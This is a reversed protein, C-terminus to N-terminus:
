ADDMLNLVEQHTSLPPLTAPSPIDSKRKRWNFLPARCSAGNYVSLTARQLRHGRRRCKRQESHIKLQICVEWPIRFGSLFSLYRSNWWFGSKSFKAQVTKRSCGSNVLKWWAKLFQLWRSMRNLYGLKWSYNNPVVFVNITLRRQIEFTCAKVM